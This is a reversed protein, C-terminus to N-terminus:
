AAAGAEVEARSIEPCGQVTDGCVTRGLGTCHLVFLAGIGLKNCVKLSREAPPVGIMKVGGKISTIRCM